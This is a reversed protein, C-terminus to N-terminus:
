AYISCLKELQETTGEWVREYPNWLLGFSKLEKRVHYTNGQVTRNYLNVCLANRDIMITIQGLKFKNTMAAKEKAEAWARRLCEGFSLKQIWKMSMKFLKWANKFIESKNYKM